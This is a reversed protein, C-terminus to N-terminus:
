LAFKFFLCIYYEIDRLLVDKIRASDYDKKIKNYKDVVHFSLNDKIEDVKDFIIYAKTDYLEELVDKKDQLKWEEGDFVMIFKFADYRRRFVIVGIKLKTIVHNTSEQSLEKVTWNLNMPGVNDQCWKVTSSNVDPSNLQVHTWDDFYNELTKKVM